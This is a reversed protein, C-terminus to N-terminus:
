DLVELGNLDDLDQAILLFHGHHKEQHDGAEQQAPRWVSNHGHHHSEPPIAHHRWRHSDNGGEEGLGACGVVGEDVDEHTSLNSKQLRHECHAEQHIVRMM